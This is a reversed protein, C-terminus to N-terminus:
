AEVIIGLQKLLEEDYEAVQKKVEGESFATVYKNYDELVKEEETKVSTKTLTTNTKDKNDTTITRAETDGTQINTNITDVNAIDTDTDTGLNQNKIELGKTKKTPPYLYGGGYNKAEEDTLIKKVTFSRKFNNASYVDGEVTYYEATGDSHPLVMLTENKEPDYSMIWSAKGVRERDSDGNLDTSIDIRTGPELTDKVTLDKVIKNEPIEEVTFKTGSYNPKVKYYKKGDGTDKSFIMYSNEGETSMCDPEYTMNSWRKGNADEIGEVTEMKAVDEYYESSLQYNVGTMGNNDWAKYAYKNTNTFSNRNNYTEGVGIAYEKGEITITNIGSTNFDKGYMNNFYENISDGTSFEANKDTIPRWVGDEFYGVVIENDIITYYIEKNSGTKRGTSKLGASDSTIISDAYVDEKFNNYFVNNQYSLYAGYYDDGLVAKTHDSGWLQFAKGINNMAWDKQDSYFGFRQADEGTHGIVNDRNLDYGMDREMEALQFKFTAKQIDYNAQNAANSAANAKEQIRNAQEQLRENEKNHRITEQLYLHNLCEIGRETINNAAFWGSVSRRVSVARDKDLTSANSDKLTEDALVWQSLMYGAEAPMYWGTLQGEAIAKEEAARYFGYATEHKKEKAYARATALNTDFFYKKLDMESYLDENLTAELFSMQTNVDNIKGAVWLTGAQTADYNYADSRIWNSISNGKRQYTDHQMENIAEYALERETKPAPPTPQETVVASSQSPDVTPEQVQAYGATNEPSTNATVVVDSEPTATTMVEDEM